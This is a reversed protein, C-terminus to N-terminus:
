RPAVVVRSRGAREGRKSQRNRNLAVETSTVGYRAPKRAKDADRIVAVLKAELERVYSKEKNPWSDIEIVPGHHTHSAVLFLEAFGDTKLSDRIRKMSDRTPAALDLSVTAIKNDGAKLVLAVLTSHTSRAPVPNTRERPTGGCPFAAAPHHGGERSGGEFDAGAAPVLFVFGCVCAFWMRLM